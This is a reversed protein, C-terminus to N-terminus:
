VYYVCYPPKRFHPIGWVMGKCILITVQIIKPSVGVIGVEIWGELCMWVRCNQARPGQIVEPGALIQWPVELCHGAMRDFGLTKEHQSSLPSPWSVPASTILQFQLFRSTDSIDHFIMPFISTFKFFDCKLPTKQPAFRGNRSSRCFCLQLQVM